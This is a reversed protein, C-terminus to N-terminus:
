ESIILRESSVLEGDVVFRYVYVGISLNTENILLTSVGESLSYSRIQKGTLDYLIFTGISGQPIVYDFAMNGNSPNPYLKGTSEPNGSVTTAGIRASSNQIVPDVVEQFSVEFIAKILAQAAVYAHHLTDKSISDVLASDASYLPDKLSYYGNSSQELRILVELLKCENDLTGGLAVRVTDLNLSADAFQKATVQASALKCRDEITTGYTKLVKQVSDLGNVITTDTLFDRILADIALRKQTEYDAIKGFLIDMPSIGNQAANISNSIGNPLTTAINAYAELVPTRLPSNALLVDKMIGPSTGPRNLFAILVDDSLYPSSGLLLNKLSGSSISSNIASMLASTSGGDIQNELLTIQLDANSITNRQCPPCNITTAPCSSPTNNNTLGVNPTILTPFYGAVPQPYVYNISPVAPDLYYEWSSQSFYNNAASTGVGPNFTGQHYDVCGNPVVIDYGEIAQFDFTNCRMQLGYDNQPLNPNSTQAHCNVRQAQIGVFIEHFTNRYVLNSYQGSNSLVIGYTGDRVPSNPFALRYGFENGEVQYATSNNLYVGYSAGPSFQGSYELVEFKNNTIVGYNVFNTLIGRYNGIFDTQDVKFTNITSSLWSQIGYALNKFTNRQLQTCPTNACAPVVQFGSGFSYIGMGNNPIDLVSQVTRTNEFNNGTFFIGEVGYLVVFSMFQVSQDKLTANTTLFQCKSFRSYNHLVNSMDTYFTLMAGIRNNRFTSNTAIIIGGSANQDFSQNPFQSVTKTTIAGIYANEIVSNNLISLWGQISNIYTGQPQNKDGQVEIGEWMGEGCGDYSTFTTNSLILKGGNTNSTGREIIVRAGAQPTPSYTRPAFRFTMGTITVRYGAPIKLSSRITVTSVPNSVTGGFPNSTPTWNQVQSSLTGVNFNNASFTSNFVCCSNLSSSNLYDQYVEGDIQDNLLRLRYRDTANIAITLPLTVQVANDNWVATVPGGGSQTIDLSALRGNNNSVNDGAFYLKGDNGLEIQSFKFDDPNPIAPSTLGAFPTLSPSPANFDIYDLYPASTHSVYLYRGDPSFELGKVFDVPGGSCDFPFDQFNVLVGASNFDGWYVAHYPFGPPCFTGVVEYGVALRFNGNSLKVIEMESRCISGNGILADPLGPTTYNDYAIGTSTVLFRYIKSNDCVYLFRNGNALTPTVALSISGQPYTSTNTTTLVTAINNPIGGDALPDAGTLSLDLTVYLPIPLGGVNATFTTYGGAVLFYKKCSGPVPVILWESTGQVLPNNSSFQPPMYIDNIWRGNRDYVTHDVIFFLLNGNADHMANTAYQAPLGTYGNTPLSTLSLTPFKLQYPPLSWLRSQNGQTHGAFFLACLLLTFNVRLFIKSINKM